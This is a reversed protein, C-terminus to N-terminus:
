HADHQEYPLNSPAAKMLEFPNIPIFGAASAKVQHRSTATVWTGVAALTVVAAFGILILKRM